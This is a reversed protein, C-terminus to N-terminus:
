RQSRLLARRMMRAILWIVVALGLLIEAHEGYIRPEGHFAGWPGFLVYHADLFLIIWVCGALMVALCGAMVMAAGWAVNKMGALM